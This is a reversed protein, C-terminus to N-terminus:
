WPRQNRFDLRCSWFLEIVHEFRLFVDFRLIKSSPSWSESGQRPSMPTSKCQIKELNCIVLVYAKWIQINFKGVQGAFNGIQCMVTIKARWFGFFDCFVAEPPWHRVSLPFQLNTDQLRFREWCDSCVFNEVGRPRIPRFQSRRLATKQVNLRM